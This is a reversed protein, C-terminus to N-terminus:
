SQGSNCHNCELGIKLEKFVLIVIGEDPNCMGHAQGAMDTGGTINVVGLYHGFGLDHTRM